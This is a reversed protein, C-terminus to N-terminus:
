KQQYSDNKWMITFILEHMSYNRLKYIYVQLTSWQVQEIGNIFCRLQYVHRFVIKHEWDRTIEKAILCLDLSRNVMAESVFVGFVLNAHM